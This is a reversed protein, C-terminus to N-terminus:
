RLHTENDRKAIWDVILNGSRNECGRAPNKRTARCIGAECQNAETALSCKNTANAVIKLIPEDGFHGPEPDCGVCRRIEVCTSEAKDIIPTPITGKIHQPDSAGDGFNWRDASIRQRDQDARDQLFSRESQNLRDLLHTGGREEKIGLAHQPTDASISPNFM